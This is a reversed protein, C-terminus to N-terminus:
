AQRTPEPPTPAPTGPEDTVGSGWAAAGIRIVEDFEDDGPPEFERSLDTVVEVPVPRDGWGGGPKRANGTLAAELPLDFWVAVRRAGRERALALVAQRWARRIHTADVIVNRGADLHQAVREALVAFVRDGQDAAPIGVAELENRIEDSAVLRANLRRANARAWTSKGSGQLGILVYVSTM